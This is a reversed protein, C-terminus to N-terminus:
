LWFGKELKEHSWLECAYLYYYHQIRGGDTKHITVGGHKQILDCQNLKVGVYASSKTHLELSDIEIDSDYISSFSFTIYDGSKVLETLDLSSTLKGTSSELTLPMQNVKRKISKEAVDSYMEFFSLENKLPASSFSLEPERSKLHEFSLLDSNVGLYVNFKIRDPSFYYITSFDFGTPIEKDTLAYLGDDNYFEPVLLKYFEPFQSVPDKFKFETSYYIEELPSSLRRLEVETVSKFTDIDKNLEKQKRLQLGSLEKLNLESSKIAKYNESLEQKLASLQQVSSKIRNEINESKSILIERQNNEEKLQKAAIESKKHSERNSLIETVISITCLVFLLGAAILGKNNIRGSEKFDYFTGYIGLASTAVILMYKFFEILSM